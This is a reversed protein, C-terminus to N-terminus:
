SEYLKYQVGSDIIMDIIEGFVGEVESPVLLNYPYKFKEGLADPLQEKTTKLYKCVRDIDDADIKVKKTYNRRPYDYNEYELSIIFNGLIDWAVCISSFIEIECNSEVISLKEM